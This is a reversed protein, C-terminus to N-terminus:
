IQIVLNQLLFDDANSIVLSVNANFSEAPDRDTWSTTGGGKAITIKLTSVRTADVDFRAVRLATHTGGVINNETGRLTITNGSRSDNQSLGSNINDMTTDTDVIDVDGTAPLTSLLAGSSTMMEFLDTRYNNIKFWTKSISEKVSSKFLIKQKRQKEKANTAKKVKADIAPNGTPPMFEASHPDLKNFRAATKKGDVLDPHYGNKMEPPEVIPFGLPAPKGDYYGPIKKTLDNFSKKNKETITEGQPEHHAVM